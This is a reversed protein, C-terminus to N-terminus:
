EDQILTVMMLMSKGNNYTSSSYRFAYKKSYVSMNGDAPEYRVTFTTAGSDFASDILSTIESASTGVAIKNFESLPTVSLIYKTVGNSPAYSPETESPYVAKYMGDWLVNWMTDQTVTTDYYWISLQSHNSEVANKIALAIGSINDAYYVGDYVGSSAVYKLITKTDYNASCTKVGSTIATHNKYMQVDSILFYDYRNASHDNPDKGPRAPDDWTVDVNYWKGDIKVQNWAHSETQGSSNTGTGGVFTVELGAMECMMEFTLAYGQCVCKRDRLTEEVYYNSYTFDYDLNIILWDHITIAKEFDSMGPKIITDVIEKAMKEANTLNSSSSATTTQETSSSPKKTTTQQTTTSAPKKTTTQQTTTTDPKKTTTQQSTTTDPKKTTTQQSTTTDPKKTTTQQSTTTDPKKTATQQSITTDPKNTTSQQTSTIGPRKTPPEVIDSTSSSTQNETTNETTDGTINDPITESSDDKNTDTTTESESINEKSTQGNDVITADLKDTAGCGTITVLILALIAVLSVFKNKFTSRM